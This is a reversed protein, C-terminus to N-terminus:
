INVTLSFTRNLSVWQFSLVNKKKGEPNAKKKVRFCFYYKKPSVYSESSEKFKYVNAASDSEMSDDHLKWIM